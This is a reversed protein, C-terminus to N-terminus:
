LGQLNIEKSLYIVICNYFVKLLMTDKLLKLFLKDSQVLEVLQTLKDLKVLQGLEALILESNLFFGFSKEIHNLGKSLHKWETDLKSIEEM